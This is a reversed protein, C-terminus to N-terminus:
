NRRSHANMNNAAPCHRSQHQQAKPCARPQPDQLHLPHYRPKVWEPTPHCHYQIQLTDGGQLNAHPQTLVPAPTSFQPNQSPDEPDEQTTDSENQAIAIYQSTTSSFLQGITHQLM